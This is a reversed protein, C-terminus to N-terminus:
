CGPQFAELDRHVVGREHAFAVANCIQEAYSLLTLQGPRLNTWGANRWPQGEV